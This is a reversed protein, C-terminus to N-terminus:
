ANAGSDVLFAAGTVSRAEPSALWAVLGALDAPDGYRPIAMFGRQADSSPGDVPNMDTAHSGPNVVNATIGRPGLDRAMARTLGLLAAKSATYASLGPMLSKEALNSGITIIRGGDGMHALAAQTMLFVGRVNVAMTRDFDTLPIEGMPEGQGVFVGANNVLIDIRGFADAAARAAGDAAAPDAADAQVALARRGTARLEEVVAEAKSASNSYTIAVDAGEAALRRAIAAGIGRSAGTVIATRNQLLM